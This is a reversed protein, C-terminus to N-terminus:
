YVVLGDMLEWVEVLKIAVSQTIGLTWGAFRDNLDVAVAENMHGFEQRFDDEYVSEGIVQGISFIRFEAVNKSLYQRILGHKKAVHDQWDLKKLVHNNGVLVLMKANPNSEFVDTISGAM